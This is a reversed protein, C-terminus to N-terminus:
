HPLELSVHSAQSHMQPFAQRGEEELILLSDGQPTASPACALAPTPPPPPKLFAWPGRVPRLPPCPYLLPYVSGRLVIKLCNSSSFSSLPTEEWLLLQLSMLSSGGLSESGAMMPCSSPPVM